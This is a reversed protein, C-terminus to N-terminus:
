RGISELESERRFRSVAGITLATRRDGDSRCTFNQKPAVQLALSLVKERPPPSFAIPLTNFFARLLDVIVSRSRQHENEAYM